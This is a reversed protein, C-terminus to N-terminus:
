YENAIDRLEAFASEGLGNRLKLATELCARYIKEAERSDEDYGCDRAWEEFTGSDIVGSDMAFAALVDALDPLIPAGGTVGWSKGRAKKGHECEFKLLESDDRTMRGAKYSPAHACGASYDGALVERGAKKVTVRWNLSPSKEGANRSKSFPVFVSEVTVGHAKAFAHLRAKPTPDATAGDNLRTLLAVLEAAVSEAVPEYLWASGYKYPSGPLTASDPNLNAGSLFKCREEYTKPALFSELAANQARTGARMDNLHVADWIDCLRLADAHNAETAAERLTDVIQGAAGRTYGSLSHRVAEVPVVVLDVTRRSDHYASQTEYDIRFTQTGVQFTASQKM